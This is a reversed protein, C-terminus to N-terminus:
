WFPSFFFITLFLINKKKKYFDILMKKKAVMNLFTEKKSFNLKQVFTLKNVM